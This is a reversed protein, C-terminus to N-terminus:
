KVIFAQGPKVINNLTIIPNCGVTTNDTDQTCSFGFPSTLGGSGNYVSYNNVVKKTAFLNSPYNVGQM